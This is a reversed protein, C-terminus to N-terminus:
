DDKPLRHRKGPLKEYDAVTTHGPERLKRIAHMVSSEKPPNIIRHRDKYTLQAGLGDFVMAPM